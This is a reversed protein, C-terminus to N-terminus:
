VDLAGPLADFWNSLREYTPLFPEPGPFGVGGVKCWPAGGPPRSLRGRPPGGALRREPDLEDLLPLLDRESTARGHLLVLAGEPSGRARRVEHVLDDIGPM